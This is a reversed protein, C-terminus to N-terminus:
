NGVRLLICTFARTWKIFCKLLDFGLGDSRNCIVSEKGDQDTSVNNDTFVGDFDMILTHVDKWDPISKNLM